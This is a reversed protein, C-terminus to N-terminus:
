KKNNVLMILMENQKIQIELAAQREEKELDFRQRQLELENERIQLERERLSKESEHKAQLYSAVNLKKAKPVRDKDSIWAIM